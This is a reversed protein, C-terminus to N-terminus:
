SRDGNMATPHALTGAPNVQQQIGSISAFVQDLTGVRRQGLSLVDAMLDDGAQAADRDDRGALHGMEQLVVSLLDMGEVAPTGARARGGTFEADSQPSADTFWGHGAADTSIEVRNESPFALGLESGSLADVQYEASALRQVLGADVGAARLRALAATVASQLAADGLPAAGPGAFDALLPLGPSDSWSGAVPTWSGLGYPFPVIDPAGPSDGFRIYWKGAPDLVGITTKGTGQWDGVVPKWGAGGYSFPAIDPAGASISNRLYWTATGPDFVGIGDHGTGTWDGVVPIWGPAGYSFPVFDPAGPGNSNRVYWTETAPDVVAITDKGSGTWDGALPIWGAGGYSFPAVDPEGASNSNRLYWTDTSPDVVAITDKGDGNWDGTLGVWGSGGYPFPAVDPAGPSNSSRLYWTADGPAFVGVTQQPFAKARTAVKLSVGSGAPGGKYTIRATLGSGLFNTSFTAGEALGQFFGTVGGSTNLLLFEAGAAPKFGGVSTVTLTTTGSGLAAPGTAIVQAYNTAGFGPTAGGIPAAFTAAGGFTVAGTALIGPGAVGPALTGGNVTVPGNITGTGGMTGGTVTVSSTTLVGNVLLTGGGILRTAGRYGDTGYLALIGALGKTLGGSGGITGTAAFTQGSEVNITSNPDALTYARASTFSGTVDLVANGITVGAAGLNGEASVRLTGGSVTTGGGYTNAPNSLTLAGPGTTTLSTASGKIAGTASGAGAEDVTLSKLPNTAGVTGSFTVSNGAYVALAFAGDVANGFSINAVPGIATLTTDGALTVAGGYGQSGDRGDNHTTVSGARFNTTGSVWLSDLARTGGVVGGFSANGTITLSHLVLIGPSSTDVTSGFSVLAPAGGASATLTVEFRITFAGTYSQGGGATTISTAGTTSGSVSLTRLARTAGIAYFDLNGNITLSQAGATAADLGSVITVVGGASTLTTDRTITTNGGLSQDGTTKVIGCSLVVTNLVPSKGTTFSKLATTAGVAGSFTTVATTLTGVQLAFHGDITGGFTINGVSEFLTDAGLLVAGNYTQPAPPKLTAATSFRHAAAV